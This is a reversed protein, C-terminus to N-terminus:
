DCGQRQEGVSVDDVWLEVDFTAGPNYTLIGIQLQNQSPGYWNSGTAIGDIAVDSVEQADVWLQIRRNASDMMWEVCAWRNEPIDSGYGTRAYDAFTSDVFYESQWKRTQDAAGFGYHALQGAGPSGAVMPGNVRVFTWHRNAPVRPMFMWFRGFHKQAPSPFAKPSGSLVAAFGLDRGMPVQCLVSRTGSHARTADVKVSGGNGQGGSWDGSLAAGAAYAEFDDRLRVGADVGADRPEVGGDSGADVAGAEVRGADPEGSDVGGDLTDGADVRGADVEGADATQGADPGPTGSVEGVCRALGVLTLAVSLARPRLVSM